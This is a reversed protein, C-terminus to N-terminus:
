MDLGWCRAYRVLQWIYIGFSPDSLINNSFFPFTVIHFDFDDYKDWKDFILNGM